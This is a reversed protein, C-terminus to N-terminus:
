RAIRDRRSARKRAKKGTPERRCLGERQIRRLVKLTDSPQPNLLPVHLPEAWEGEIRQLAMQAERGATVILRPQLVGLEDRLHHVGHKREAGRFNLRRPRRYKAVNMWALHMPDLCSWVCRGVLDTWTDWTETTRGDRGSMQLHVEAVLQHYASTTPAASFRELLLTLSDDRAAWADSDPPAVPNQLVFVVGGPAYGRGIWSPQPSVREGGSRDRCLECNAIGAEIDVITAWDLPTSRDVAM